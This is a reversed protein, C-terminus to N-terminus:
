KECFSGKAIWIKKKGLTIQDSSISEDPLSHAVEEIIVGGDFAPFECVMLVEPHEIANDWIGAPGANMKYNAIDNIYNVRVFGYTVMEYPEKALCVGGKVFRLPFYEVDWRNAKIAPDTALWERATDANSTTLIFIGGGGEFPGATILKGEKALREINKLHREQLDMAKEESIKEKDPKSNLFVFTHTYEQAFVSTGALVAILILVSRM